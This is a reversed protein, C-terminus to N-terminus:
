IYAKKTLLFLFKQKKKEVKQANDPYPKTRTRKRASVCVAADGSAVM